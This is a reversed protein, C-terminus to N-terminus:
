RDSGSVARATANAKIAAATLLALVGVLGVSPVIVVAANATDSLTFALGLAWSIAGAGYATLFTVTLMPGASDHGAQWARDSSMTAKTRIGIASNREIDGSAVRSKMYHIVAGLAMLGAGFAFGAVPDM